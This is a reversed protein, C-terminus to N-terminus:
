QPALGAGDASVIIAVAITEIVFDFKMQASIRCPRVRIAVCPTVQSFEDVSCVGTIRFIVRAERLFAGRRRGGRSGALALVGDPKGGPRRCESSSGFSHGASAQAYAEVVQRPEIRVDGRLHLVRREGGAAMEEQPALHDALVRELDSLVIDDGDPSIVALDDAFPRCRRFDVGSPPMDAQRERERRLILELAQRDRDYGGTPIITITLGQLQDEPTLTFALGVHRWRTDVEAPTPWEGIVKGDNRRISVVYHQRIQLPNQRVMQSWLLLHGGATLTSNQMEAAVDPNLGPLHYFRVSLSGGTVREPRRGLTTPGSSLRIADQRQSTRATPAPSTSEESLRPYDKPDCPDTGHILEALDSWADSDTDTRTPDTGLHFEIEDDLGDGDSDDYGGISGPQSGLSTLAYTAALLLFLSLRLRIPM